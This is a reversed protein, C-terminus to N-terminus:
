GPFGPVEVGEYIEEVPVSIGLCTFPVEGAPHTRLTWADGPERAHTEVLRRQSDAFVVLEISPRLRYHAFKAGRDYGATSESLVEIVVRPNTLSEPRTPAFKREGCVVTLDPYCYMGTEALRVRLDSIFPFCPGGRLRTRLAVHLNGVIVLHAESAGSMAVVEGNVFEHKGEHTEDYELYEAESMRGIAHAYM